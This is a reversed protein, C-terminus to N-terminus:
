RDKDRRMAVAALFRQVAEIKLKLKRVLEDDRQTPTLVAIRELVGVLAAATGILSTLLLFVALLRASWEAEVSMAAAIIDIVLEM